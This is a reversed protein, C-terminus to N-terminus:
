ARGSPLLRHASAVKARSLNSKEEDPETWGPYIARAVETRGAGMLGAGSFKVQM